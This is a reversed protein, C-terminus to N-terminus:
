KTEREREEFKYVSETKFEIRFRFTIGKFVTNYNWGFQPGIPFERFLWLSPAM